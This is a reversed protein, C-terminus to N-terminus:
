EQNFLHPAYKKLEQGLESEQWKKHLSLPIKKGEPIILLPAWWTKIESAPQRLLLCDQKRLRFLFAHSGIKELNAWDTHLQSGPSYFGIGAQSTTIRTVNILWLDIVGNLILVVGQFILLIRTSMKPEPLFFPVRILLVIEITGLILMSIAWLLLSRRTSRDPLHVEEDDM